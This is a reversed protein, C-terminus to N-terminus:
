GSFGYLGIAAAIWCVNLIVVLTAAAALLSGKMKPRLWFLDGAACALFPSWGWAYWGGLGGWTGWLKRNAVAFLLFGAAAAALGIANALPRVAPVRPRSSCLWVLCLVFTLAILWRPERFFSWNGLWFFTKLFTYISRAMGSVARVSVLHPWGAGTRNFEYTGGWAWGRLAQVPFVLLSALATLIVARRGREKGIVVVAFAAIPFASLKILPGAALLAALGWLPARRDLALLILACWLFLLADNSGRVLAESAGPLLLLLLGAAAFFPRRRRAIAYLPGFLAILVLTLSFLRLLLLRAETKGGFIRLLIGAFVYYLPPQHTEYNARPPATPPEVAANLINLAAGRGTFPPCGFARSLDPGCPHAQVAAVIAGGMEKSTGPRFPHAAFASARALHFPEDPGEFVPVFFVQFTMRLVVLVALGLLSRRVGASLM